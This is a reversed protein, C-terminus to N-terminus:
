HCRAAAGRTSESGCPMGDLLGDSEDRALRARGLVGDRRQGGLDSGSIGDAGGREPPSPASLGCLFRACQFHSLSLGLPRGFSGTRYLWPAGIPVVSMYLVICGAYTVLQLWYFRWIWVNRSDTSMRQMFPLIYPFVLYFFLMTSITWCVGNPPAGIDMFPYLWTNIGSICIPM